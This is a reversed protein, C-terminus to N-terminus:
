MEQTSSVRVKSKIQTEYKLHVLLVEQIEKTSYLCKDKLAPQIGLFKAGNFDTPLEFRVSVDSTSDKYVKKLTCAENRCEGRPGTLKKYEISSNFSIDAGFAPENGANIVQFMLDLFRGKGVVVEHMLKTAKMTLNCKCHDPDECGFYIDISQQAKLTIEELYPSLMPCNSKESSSCDNLEFSVQISVNLPKPEDDIPINRASVDFLFKLRQLNFSEWSGSMNNPVLVIDFTSLTTLYLREDHTIKVTAKVKNTYDYYTWNYTQVYLNM